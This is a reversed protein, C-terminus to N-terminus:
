VGADDKGAVAAHSEAGQGAPKGTLAAAGRFLDSLPVGAPAPSPSSRGTQAFSAAAGPGGPLQSALSVKGPGPAVRRHPAAATEEDRARQTRDTWTQHNM